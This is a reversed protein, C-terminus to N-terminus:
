AAAREVQAPQGLARRQRRPALALALVAASGAVISLLTELGSFAVGVALADTAGVGATGLALAIAAGAIGLNGPTVQLTGAVDVAAVVLVANGVPSDIGVAATVAVAAALRAGAAAGSWGVLRLSRGPSSGLSRFAVLLHGVRGRPRLRHAGAAGAAAGVALLAATAAPWAPLAGVLAAAAVVVATWIARAAGVAVAAGGATLLRGEGPLTRAFLAIRVPAGVRAPLLSNVLSGTAFRAISDGGSGTKGCGRMATDWAMGSCATGLLLFFAAVLLGAPEAALAGALGSRAQDGFLQPSV